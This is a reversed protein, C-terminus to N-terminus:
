PHRSSPVSQDSTYSNCAPKLPPCLSIMNTSKIQVQRQLRITVISSRILTDATVREFIAVLNSIMM